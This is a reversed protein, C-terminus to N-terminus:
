VQAEKQINDWEDKLYNYEADIIQSATKQKNLIYAYPLGQIWVELRAGIYTIPNSSIFTFTKANQTMDYVSKQCTSLKDYIDSFDCEYPMYSGCDLAHQKVQSPEAAFALFKKALDKHEAKAPIIWGGVQGAYNVQVVNGDKDTKANSLAPTSMIAMETGEPLTDLIENEFWTGNPMMAIKGQAFDSQVATFVSYNTIVYAGNKAEVLDEWAKLATLKAQQYVSDTKFNDLSEMKCYEQFTDYGMLQAIWNMVVFDWYNFIDSSCAFPVVGTNSKTITECLAILEDYTTPVTWSNKEFLTKNYYIGSAGGGAPFSYYHDKFHGAELLSEDTLSARVTKGTSLTTTFVDDINELYGKSAWERMITSTSMVVDRLKIGTSFRDNLQDTIGKQAEIYVKNPDINNEACFKDVLKNLWKIGYGGNDYCITLVYDKEDGCATCLGLTSFVMAVCLMLCLIKRTITKMCYFGKNEM